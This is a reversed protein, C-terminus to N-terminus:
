KLSKFVEDAKKQINNLVEDTDAGSYMFRSLEDLAYNRIDEPTNEYYRLYLQYNDPEASMKLINQITKNSVDVKSTNAIGNENLMVNQTDTKYFNRLAALAADKDKSAKAVCIPSAEFFITSKQGNMSPVVFSDFDTGAEMGYEVVMSNATPNPELMIAIEGKAFTKFVDSYLQPKAFYGKDFMSRWIEMVKKVSEDTYAKTGNCIDVYLQPDYAAILQEFWIFSAWSDNKLGIPTVGSQKIKECAALFEDFTKPVDTVGAKEFVTKNYLCTNYLVSYPAAYAKGDVTFAEKIDASVGDAIYNDWEATLDVLKDNKALTELQSGSWWTFMGPASKDDISQQLSTQYAAVDPFNVIKVDVGSDNKWVLSLEDIIAQDSLKDLWFETSGEAKTVESSTAEAKTSESASNSVGETKAGGCGTVIISMMTVSLLFATIKKMKFM